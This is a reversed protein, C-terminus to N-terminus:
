LYAEVKQWIVRCMKEFTYEAAVTNCLAISNALLDYENEQQFARMQRVNFALDDRRLERFPQGPLYGAEKNCFVSLGWSAAELLVTPNADCNALTILADYERCIGDIVGPTFTQGGHLMMCPVHEFTDPKASGFHGLRFGAARALEAANCFGKAPIDNGIVCVAREGPPNFNTKCFPHKDINLAMDLRTVKPYLAAFPSGPMTNYWHQGTVFLLADAKQFMEIYRQVDGASVMGASYPQLVIKAKITASLAQQMFSGPTDWLHGIVVDSVSFEVPEVSDLNVYRFTYGHEAAKERLLRGVHWWITYPSSVPESDDLSGGGSSYSFWLTPM